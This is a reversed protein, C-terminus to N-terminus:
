KGTPLPKCTLFVKSAFMTSDIGGAMDSYYNLYSFKNSLITKDSFRYDIKATIIGKHFDTYDM